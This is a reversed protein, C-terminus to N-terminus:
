PTPQFVAQITIRNTGYNKPLPGFPAASFVARQAALDLTSVGSPQTVRVSGDELSGDGLITFSVTIQQTFTPKFQRTWILWIKRQVGALYWDGEPGTGIPSGPGPPALIGIGPTESNTGSGGTGASARRPFDPPEPEPRRSTSRSEDKIKLKRADLKPPSTVAM